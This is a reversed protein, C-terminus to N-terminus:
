VVGKSTKFIAGRRFNSAPVQGTLAIELSVDLYCFSGPYGFWRELVSKLPPRFVKSLGKLLYFDAYCVTDIISSRDSILVLVKNERQGMYYSFLHLLYAYGTMFKSNRSESIGTFRNVVRAARPWDSLGGALRITNVYDIKGLSRVM